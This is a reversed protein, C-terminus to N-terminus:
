FWKFHSSSIQTKKTIEQPKKKLGYKVHIFTRRVKNADLVKLFPPETSAVWKNPAVLYAAKNAWDWCQKLTRTSKM